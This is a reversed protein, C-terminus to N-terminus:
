GEAQITISSLRLGQAHEFTMVLYAIDSEDYTKFPM